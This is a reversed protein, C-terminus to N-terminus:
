KSLFAEASGLEADIQSKLWDYSPDSYLERFAAPNDVASGNLTLNDIKESCAVLLEIGEDRMVEASVKKNGRRLSRNQMGLVYQRYTKSSTGYLTVTVPQKKDEDAYLFEDTVPHRVNMVTTEALALTNLDFM